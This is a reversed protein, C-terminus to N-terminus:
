GSVEKYYSVYPLEMYYDLLNEDKEYRVIIQNNHNLYDKVNNVRKGFDSFVFDYKKTKRNYFYVKGTFGSSKEEDFMRNNKNSYYFSTIEDEKPLQYEVTMTTTFFRYGMKMLDNGEVVSYDSGLEAVYEYNGERSNVDVPIVIMELGISDTQKGLHSALGQKIGNTFGILYHQRRDGQFYEQILYNIANATEYAYDQKYTESNLNMEVYDSAFVADSSLLPYANDSPIITSQNKAIDGLYSITGSGILFANSLNYGLHNEVTGSFGQSSLNINAIVEGSIGYERKSEFYSSSYPKMDKLDITVNTKNYQIMRQYLELKKTMEFSNDMCYYYHKDNIGYVQSEELLKVLFEGNYPVTLNFVSNETITHDDYYLISFYRSQLKKNRTKSGAFIIVAMFCVSIALMYRWLYKQQHLKLLLLYLLPGVVVIYIIIIVVYSAIRPPKIKSSEKVANMRYNNVNGDISLYTILEKRQHSLEDYIITGIKQSLYNRRMEKTGLAFHFLLINGDGFDVRELLPENEKRLVKSGETQFSIINTELKKTEFDESRYVTQEIQEKLARIEQKSLGIETKTNHLNGLEVSVVNEKMLFSLTEKYYKGTGIVLSGGEKVWQILNQVTQLDLSSMDYQDIVIIDFINFDSISSHLQKPDIVEYEMQDNVMYTLMKPHESLIGLYAREMDNRMNSEFTHSFMEKGQKDEIAVYYHEFMNMVPMTFTICKTNGAAVFLDKTYSVTHDLDDPISVIVRGYIDRSKADVTIYFSVERGLRIIQNYGVQVNIQMNEETFIHRLTQESSKLEAYVNGKGIAILATGILICGIIIKIWRKRIMVVIEKM